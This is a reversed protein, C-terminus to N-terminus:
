RYIDTPIQAYQDSPLAVGHAEDRRQLQRVSENFAELAETYESSQQMEASIERNSADRNWCTECVDEISLNWLRNYDKLFVRGEVTIKQLQATGAFFDPWHAYRKTEFTDGKRWNLVRPFREHPLRTDSPLPVVKRFWRRSQSAYGYILCCVGILMFLGMWWNM